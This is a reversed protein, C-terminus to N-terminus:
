FTVYKCIICSTAFGDIMMNDTCQPHYITKMRILSDLWMSFHLPCAAYFSQSWFSYIIILIICKERIQFSRSKMQVCAKRCEHSQSFTLDNIKKNKIFHCQFLLFLNFINLLKSDDWTFKELNDLVSWKNKM